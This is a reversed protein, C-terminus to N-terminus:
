LARIKLFGQVVKQPVHPAAFVAHLRGDPDTLLVASSHDILYDTETKGPVKAYVVGVSQALRAIEAADGTVGLFAPNFAAVYEKLLALRDREPDVSVFVFQLGSAGQPQQALTRQIENFVALTTPCFDPCHTYGFFLFSWKGKLSANTFPAGDQTQLRFEAIPDPPNFTYAGDAIQDFRTQQPEGVRTPLFAVAAAALLAAIAAAIVILRKVTIRFTLRAIRLIM